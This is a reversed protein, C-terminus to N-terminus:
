DETTRNQPTPVTGAELAAVAEPRVPEPHPATDVVAGARMGPTTQQFATVARTAPAAGLTMAGDARGYQSEVPDTPSYSAPVGGPQGMASAWYNGVGDDTWIRLPGSRAEVARENALVDNDIVTSTPRITSAQIGLDNGYVVNREYRTQGAAIMLGRGNHALVNDAIYHDSGSPIIGTSANVVTNGVVANRSPDTMITVGASTQNRALNDAVLSDSTYMFHVGFRNGTFTNNQIVTGHARHLYIGDRGGDFTSDRVVVPSRMAMVGMFGDEWDDTGDVTVNEVVAGSTDRLLVGNAPTEIHVDSVFLREIDTATIGADGHGYGSEINADWEDGTEVDEAPDTRNGVGTIEVGTVAVDDSRIRVVTGNGGGSLTADEGRITLSKNVVIHENYTGAPVVVTSDAPAADITGQVTPATEGVVASEERHTFSQVADVREDASARHDDVRDRVAGASDIDFQYSQLATWDLVQGGHDATFSEADGRSAFPVVTEGTATEANSEVVYFAREADVWDPDTDTQLYGDPTVRVGTGSFDSVYIAIPYGFQQEHEPRQLTDIAHEVGCYGVVYRYQSYFVQAKPLAFGEARIRQRDAGGIGTEVTEDFLIPEPDADDSSAAFAGAAALVLLVTALLAFQWVQRNRSLFRVVTSM